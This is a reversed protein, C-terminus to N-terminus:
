PAKRKKMQPKESSVLANKSILIDWINSLNNILRFQLYMQIIRKFKTHHIYGFQHFNYWQAFVYVGSHILEFILKWLYMM